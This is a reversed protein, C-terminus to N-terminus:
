PRCHCLSPLSIARHPLLSHEPFLRCGHTIRWFVPWFTGLIRVIQFKNKLSWEELFIFFLFYNLFFYLGNRQLCGQASPLHEMFFLCNETEMKPHSGQYSSSELGPPKPPPGLLAKLSLARPPTCGQPVAHTYLSLFHSLTPPHSPETRGVHRAQHIGM